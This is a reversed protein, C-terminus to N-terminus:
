LSILDADKSGALVRKDCKQFLADHEVQSSSEDLWSKDLEMEKEGPDTDDSNDGPAKWKKNDSIEVNFLTPNLDNSQPEQQLNRTSCYKMSFPACVLYTVYM